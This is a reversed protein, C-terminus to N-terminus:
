SSACPVALTTLAQEPGARFAASVMAKILPPNSPSPSGTPKRTTPATVGNSRRTSRM